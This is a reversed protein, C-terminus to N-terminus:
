RTLGEQDIWQAVPEGLKTATLEYAPEVAVSQVLRHRMLEFPAGVLRHVKVPGSALERLLEQAPRSLMFAIDSPRLHSM